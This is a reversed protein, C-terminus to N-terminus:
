QAIEDASLARQDRPKLHIFLRGQNVSASRGGGGVSSM